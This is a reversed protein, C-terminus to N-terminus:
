LSKSLRIFEQRFDLRRWFKLATTNTVPTGIELGSAKHSTAWEAANRLLEKMHGKRRKQSVTYAADIFFVNDCCRLFRNEMRGLLIAVPEQAGHIDRVIKILALTQKSDVNLYLDCLASAANSVFLEGKVDIEEFFLRLIKKLAPRDDPIIERIM